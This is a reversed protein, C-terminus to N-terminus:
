FIHDRSHEFEESTLHIDETLETKMIVDSAYFLLYNDLDDKNTVTM